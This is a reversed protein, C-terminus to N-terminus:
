DNYIIVSKEKSYIMFLLMSIILTFTLAPYGIIENWTHFKRMENYSSVSMNNYDICTTHGGMIDYKIIVDKCGYYEFIRAHVQEHMYVLSFSICVMFLIFLIIIKIKQKM